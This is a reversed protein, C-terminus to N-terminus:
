HKYLQTHLAATNSVSVGDLATIVDYQKLGAAKASSGSTFGGVVVGGTVSEPLKLVSKQQSASVTSLDRM